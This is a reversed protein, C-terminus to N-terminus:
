PLRITACAQAAIGEGRGTFGLGETTTAKVSVRDPDIGAIAAIRQRMLDRHPGVKPRECIITLDLHAVAGGRAHVLAVAHALFRDSAAGRWTADSPPFHLGIDGAGLAGLLADTLAHLAVDADSHGILAGDHPILVGGLWLGNGPGLRHVDFGTGVRCDGLGALLRREARILDDPTTIKFNDPDGEVLAVTLGAAEAIAADDTLAKGAARRHAELIAPFRFGQPTQARYLGDRPVTGLVLGGAGRKLTDTVAVAPLAGDVRDLAALVRDIMALSVFPRAADHILVREPPAGAALAELGARVSDQREAGGAVPRTIGLGDVLGAANDIETGDVVLQISGIAPHARLAEITWRLLSRGALLQYQKALTGGARRGRGAAPVVVAIRRDRSDIM